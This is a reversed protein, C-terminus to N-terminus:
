ARARGYLAAAVHDQDALQGAQVRLIQPLGITRALTESVDEAAGSAGIV